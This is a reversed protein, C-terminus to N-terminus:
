PTLRAPPAFLLEISALAFEEPMPAQHLTVFAVASAAGILVMALPLGVGRRRGSPSPARFSRLGALIFPRMTIEM